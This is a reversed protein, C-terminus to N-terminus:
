RARALRRAALWAKGDVYRGARADERAADLAAHLRAREAPDMGDDDDEVGAAASRDIVDSM